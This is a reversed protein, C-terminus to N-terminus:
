SSPKSYDPHDPHNLFHLIFCVSCIPAVRNEPHICQTCFIKSISQGSKKNQFAALHHPVRCVAYRLDEETAEQVEAAIAREMEASERAEDREGKVRAVLM